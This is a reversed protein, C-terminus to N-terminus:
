IRRDDRSFITGRSSSFWKQRRQKLSIGKLAEQVRPCELILPSTELHFVHRITMCTRVITDVYVKEIPGTINMWESQERTFIIFNLRTKNVPPPPSPPQM